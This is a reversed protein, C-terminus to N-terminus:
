GNWSKITEVIETIKKQWDFRETMNEINMHISCDIAFQTKDLTKRNLHKEIFSAQAARARPFFSDYQGPDPVNKKKMVIEMVKGPIYNEIERGRTTWISANPINKVEQKIRAVRKKFRASPGSKDGDCILFINSNVRLLNM